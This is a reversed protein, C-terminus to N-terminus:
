TKPNATPWQILEILGTDRRHFFQIEHMQLGPASLRSTAPRFRLARLAQAAATLDDVCYGLHYPGAGGRTLLASVSSNSRTPQVLEVLVHDAPRGLFRLRVGFQDDVTESLTRDLVYGLEQLAEAAAGIDAV